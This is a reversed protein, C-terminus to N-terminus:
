NLNLPDHEGDPLWPAGVFGPDVNRTAQAMM